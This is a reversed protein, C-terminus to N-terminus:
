NYSYPTAGGKVETEISGDTGRFTTVDHPILEISLLEPIEPEKERTCQQFFVAFLVLFFTTWCGPIVYCENHNGNRKM